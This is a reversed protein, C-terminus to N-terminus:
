ESGKAYREARVSACRCLGDVQVDKLPRVGASSAQKPESEAMRSISVYGLLHQHAHECIRAGVMRDWLLKEPLEAICSVGKHFTM